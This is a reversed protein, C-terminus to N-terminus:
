RIEGTVIYRLAPMIRSLIGRFGKPREAEKLADLMELARNLADEFTSTVEIIVYRVEIGNEHYEKLMRALAKLAEDKKTGIAYEDGGVRLVFDSGRVHSLMLAMDVKHWGWRKNLWHMGVADFLIITEIEDIKLKVRNEWISIAGLHLSGTKAHLAPMVMNKIEENM